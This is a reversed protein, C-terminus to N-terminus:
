SISSRSIRLNLGGFYTIYVFNRIVSNQWAKLCTDRTHLASFFMAPCVIQLLTEIRTTV